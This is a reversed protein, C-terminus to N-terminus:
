LLSQYPNDLRVRVKQEKKTVDSSKLLPSIKRILIILISVKALSLRLSALTTLIM